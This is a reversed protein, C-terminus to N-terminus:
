ERTAPEHRGSSPEDFPVGRPGTTPRHARSLLPDTEPPLPDTEPPAASAPPGSGPTGAGGASVSFWLVFTSGAGPASFLRVHGNHAEVISRLIALGLGTRRDRDRSRRTEAGRWFGALTQAALTKAVGPVGELLCHGGALVAVLMREIMRDQGVIVRKVEFLAREALASAPPRVRAADM